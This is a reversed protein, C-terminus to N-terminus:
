AVGIPSVTDLGRGASPLSAAERGLGDMHVEGQVCGWRGTGAM